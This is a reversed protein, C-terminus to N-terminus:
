PPTGGQRQRQTVEWVKAELSRLSEHIAARDRASEDLKARTTVGERVLSSTVSLVEAVDTRMARQQESIEGVSVLMRVAPLGGVTCITTAVGIVIKILKARLARDEARMGRLETLSARMARLNTRTDDLDLTSAYRGPSDDMMDDRPPTTV